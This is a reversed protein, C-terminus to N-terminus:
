HDRFGTFCAQMSLDRHLVLSLLFLKLWLCELNLSPSGIQNDESKAFRFLCVLESILNLHWKVFCPSVMLQVSLAPTDQLSLPM